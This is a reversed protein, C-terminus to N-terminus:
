QELAEKASGVGYSRADATDAQAQEDNVLDDGTVAARHVQYARFTM